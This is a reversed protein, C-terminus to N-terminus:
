RVVEIRTNRMGYRRVLSYLRKANTPHLRVCGHSAATGLGKSKTGHVAIGSRTFFISYPMPADDYEKSRHDKQKALAWFTGNPTDYGARGTSVPWEYRVAGDVSVTMRQNTKDVSILIDAHAPQGFAVVALFAGALAPIFKGLM